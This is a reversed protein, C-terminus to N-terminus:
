GKKDDKKPPDKKDDKKEEKPPPAVPPAVAPVLPVAPLLAPAAPLPRAATTTSVTPRAVGGVVLQPSVMVLTDDKFAKLYTPDVKQGDASVVVVANATLKELYTARNLEKGDATFVTLKELEEPTVNKVLHYTRDEQITERNGNTVRTVTVKRTEPIYAQIRVKGDNDSTLLLVRPPPGLPKSETKPPPPYAPLALAASLVLM